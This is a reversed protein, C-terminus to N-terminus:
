RRSARICLTLLFGIFVCEVLVTQPGPARLFALADIRLAGSQSLYQFLVTIFLLVVPVWYLGTFSERKRAGMLPILLALAVGLLLGEIVVEFFGLEPFTKGLFPFLVCLLFAMLLPTLVVLLKRLFM